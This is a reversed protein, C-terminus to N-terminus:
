RIAMNILLNMKKASELDALTMEEVLKEFSIKPEWDLKDKAKSADGLLTEVDTARFYRPDIKIIEQNNWYGIEELGEGKWKIKIDLIRSVQNIFDRVSYQIGSAIVFDEPIEQQLMLWQMEVYDKCPGLRKECKSEWIYANKFDLNLEQM